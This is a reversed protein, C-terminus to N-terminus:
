SFITYIHVALFLAYVGLLVAGEKRSLVDKSKIFFYFLVFGIITFLCAVVVPGQDLTFPGAILALLGFTLTNMTASGLYNGFAVESRKKVVARLAIAIEPINTGVSLLVMGVLSKPAQLIDAFWVAESVLLNGSFFIVIASVVVKGIDVVIPRKVEELIEARQEKAPPTTNYKNIIWFLSVLFLLSAVGEAKTLSGDILFISPIAVVFLIYALRWGDFIKSMRVKGAAVALLPVIFILLVFSAGVLNGASVQPAGKIISNVTVSIEGLSTLFGLLFFAVVFGSKQFRTAVKDVSEIILGAFFWIAAIAAAFTVVHTIIDM